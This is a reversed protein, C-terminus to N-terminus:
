QASAETSASLETLAKALARRVFASADIGQQKAANKVRKWLTDTMRIAHPHMRMDVDDGTKVHQWARGRVPIIEYGPFGEEADKAWRAIMEETIAIGDETIYESM